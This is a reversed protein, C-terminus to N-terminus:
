VVIDGEGGSDWSLKRKVAAWNRWQETWWEAEWIRKGGEIWFKLLFSSFYGSWWCFVCPHTAIWLIITPSFATNTFHLTHFLTCMKSLHMLSTCLTLACKLSVRVSCDKFDKLSCHSLRCVVFFSVPSKPNLSNHLLKSQSFRQILHM